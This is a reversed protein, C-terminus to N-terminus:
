KAGAAARDMVAPKQEVGEGAGKASASLHVEILVKGAASEFPMVLVPPKDLPDTLSVKPTSITTGALPFNAKANGVVMNAVEGLADLCDANMTPPSEGTLSKVLAKVVPKSFRMAVTGETVGTLEIIAAVCFVDQLDQRTHKLYPSGMGVSMEATTKFVLGVATLFPNIYRVDM